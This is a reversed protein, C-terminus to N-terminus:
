IKEDGTMKPWEDRARNQVRRNVKTEYGQVNNEPLRFIRGTALSESGEM